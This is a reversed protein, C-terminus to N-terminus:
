TWRCRCASRWRTNAVPMEEPAIIVLTRSPSWGSTNWAPDAIDPTGNAQKAVVSPDNHFLVQAL